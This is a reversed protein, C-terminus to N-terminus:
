EGWAAYMRLASNTALNVLVVATGVPIRLGPHPWEWVIGNGIAAALGIQRHYSAPATPATTQGSLVIGNVSAEEMGATSGVVHHATPQGLNLTGGVGTVNGARGLGVITSTAAALFLGLERLYMSRTTARLEAAISASATQTTLLGVEYTNM